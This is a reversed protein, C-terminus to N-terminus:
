QARVDPLHDLRNDIILSRERIVCHRPFGSPLLRNGFGNASETVSLLKRVEDRTVHGIISVLADTARAPSNKTVTSLNGDDRANRLVASLTNGERSMVTLIEGFETAVLCLRKDVIGDDVVQTEGKATKFIPDRVRWILGEGTSVSKILHDRTWEEDLFGFLRQVHAWSTGKRSKSTQGVSAVYLNLAHRAGGAIAHPRRGVLNGFAVLFQLLMAVPDAESEPLVRDVFNGALGHYAAGGLPAPCEGTSSRSSDLRTVDSTDFGQDIVVPRWNVEPARPIM